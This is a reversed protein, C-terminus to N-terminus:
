MRQCKRSRKWTQMFLYSRPAAIILPSVTGLIHMRSCIPTPVEICAETSCATCPHHWGDLPLLLPSVPSGLLCIPPPCPTPDGDRVDPAQGNAVDLDRGDLLLLSSPVLPVNPAPVSPDAQTLEAITIPDVPTLDQHADPGAADTESPANDCGNTERSCGFLEGSISCGDSGAISTPTDTM